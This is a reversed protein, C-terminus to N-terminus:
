IFPVSSHAVASSSSTSSSPSEFKIDLRHLLRSPGSLFLLVTFSTVMASVLPADIIMRSDVVVPVFISLTSFSIGPRSERRKWLNCPFTIARVQVVLIVLLLLIVPRLFMGLALLVVAALDVLFALTVVLTRTTMYGMAIRDHVM